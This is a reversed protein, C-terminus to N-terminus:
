NHKRKGELEILLKNLASTTWKTVSGEGEQELEADGLTKDLLHEFFYSNLSCM